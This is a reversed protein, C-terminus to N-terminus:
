SMRKSLIIGVVFFVLSGLISGMGVRTLLGADLEIPAAPLLTAVRRAHRATPVPMAVEGPTAAPIPAAAEIPAQMPMSTATSMATPTPSIAPTKTPIIRTPSPLAVRTPTPRVTAMPPVTTATPPLPTATPTDPRAEMCVADFWVRNEGGSGDRAIARLFITARESRAAFIMTMEPRNLAANGDFFDPGWIVNSSKPDTGGTPDVGVKRGISDVRVNPGSYSKAALSYGLRFMYYVSPQLNRVTQLIGADFTNTSFIQQSGNPDIQENGVWRFQPPVGNFVFPEWGEAASGYQTDHGPAMSGNTILNNPDLACPDKLKFKPIPTDDAPPFAWAPSRTLFFSAFLSAILIAAIFKHSTRSIM